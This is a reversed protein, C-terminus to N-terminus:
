VQLVSNKNRFIIEVAFIQLTLHKFYEDYEVTM